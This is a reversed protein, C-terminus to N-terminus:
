GLYKRLAGWYHANWGKRLHEAEARSSPFGTHDFVLRTGAGDPNLAFCVSSYVGPAWAADRWAQVVRVNEVLEVTRGVIVGGFLSFVGGVSREIAAPRGTFAAFQKADLLAEYLRPPPASFDEVQHIALASIIERPARAGSAASALGALMVASGALLGRRSPNERHTSM